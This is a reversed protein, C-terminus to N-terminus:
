EEGVVIERVLALQIECNRVWLRALHADDCWETFDLVEQGHWACSIATGHGERIL